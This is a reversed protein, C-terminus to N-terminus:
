ENKRNGAFGILECEIVRTVEGISKPEILHAFKSVLHQAILNVDNVRSRFEDIKQLSIDGNSGANIGVARARYVWCWSGCKASNGGCEDCGNEAGIPAADSLISRLFVLEVSASM